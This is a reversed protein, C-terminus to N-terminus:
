EAESIRPAFAVRTNKEVHAPEEVTDPVTLCNGYQLIYKFKHLFM